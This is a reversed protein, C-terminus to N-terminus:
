NKFSTNKVKARVRYGCQCLAKSMRKTFGPFKHTKFKDAIKAPKIDVNQLVKLQLDELLYNTTQIRRLYHKLHKLLWNKLVVNQLFLISNRIGM